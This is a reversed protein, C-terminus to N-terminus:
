ATAYDVPAHLDHDASIKEFLLCGYQQFKSVCDGVRFNRRRQDFFGGLYLVANVSRYLLLIFTWSRRVHYGRGRRLSAGDLGKRQIIQGLWELNIIARAMRLTCGSKCAAFYFQRHASFIDGVVCDM